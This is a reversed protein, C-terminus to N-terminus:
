HKALYLAKREQQDLTMHVGKGTCWLLTSVSIAIYFLTGNELIDPTAWVSPAKARAMLVNKVAPSSVAQAQHVLLFCFLLALFFTIGSHM